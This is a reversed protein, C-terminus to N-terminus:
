QGGRQTRHSVSGQQGMFMGHKSLNFREARTESQNGGLYLVDKLSETIEVKPESPLIFCQFEVTPAFMDANPVGVEHLHLCRVKAGFDKGLRYRLREFKNQSVPNTRDYPLVFFSDSSSASHMSNAFYDSYQCLCKLADSVLLPVPPAPRDCSLDSLRGNWLVSYLRGQTTLLRNEKDETDRPCRVAVELRLQWNQAFMAGQAESNATSTEASVIQISSLPESSKYFGKDWAGYAEQSSYLTDGRSFFCSGLSDSFALPIAWQFRPFFELPM